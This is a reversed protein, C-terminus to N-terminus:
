GRAARTVQSLTLMLRNLLCLRPVKTMCFHPQAFGGGFDAGRQRVLSGYISWEAPTQDDLRLRRLSRASIIAIHQLASYNVLFFPM